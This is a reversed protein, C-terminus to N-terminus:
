RRRNRADVNGDRRRGSEEGTSEFNTVLSNLSPCCKSGSVVWRREVKLQKAVLVANSVSSSFNHGEDIIIRLWHLKQLPSEYLKSNNHCHCDRLRTAAIYPCSCRRTAGSTARRGQSDVGDQIEQEFRTRTFLVVDYKMLETPIPLESTVDIGDDVHSASGVKGRGRSVKDVVLVKISGKIVHKRIESQWQDLLIPPVVVVTGSCTLIQQPPLKRTNRSHRSARQVIEYCPPNRELIGRITHPIKFGNAESQDFFAKAPIAYQVITSAAMESLKSVHGRVLRPPPHKAAPIKPFHGKTALIVALCVITKGLGMTEALIGGQNTEYYIPTKLFSGDRAGFYFIEGNPSSRAELRPDLQLRPSVERQIMLGASRAQYPYLRTKLGPLPQEGDLEWPSVECSKLLDYVAARAYRNKIMAPVPNPSPLKNFLYYLSVPEVSAWPDFYPGITDPPLGVWAEASINVKHLLQRLGAKLSSSHRDLTHCRRDEPLLYVRVLSGQIEPAGQLLFLRIWHAQLLQTVKARLIVRAEDPLTTTLLEQWKKERTPSQGTCITQDFQLCGLAIYKRLDDSPGTSGYAPLRRNCTSRATHSASLKHSPTCVADKTRIKEPTTEYTANYKESASLPGTPYTHPDM